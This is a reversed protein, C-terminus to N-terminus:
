GSLEQVQFETQIKVFAENVHKNNLMKAFLYFLKDCFRNEFLTGKRM